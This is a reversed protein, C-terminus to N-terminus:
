VARSRVLAFRDKLRLFPTELFRYSMAALGTTVAFAAPLKLGFVLVANRLSSGPGSRLGLGSHAMLAGVAEQVMVHFVYLGYSIKGLYVLRPSWRGSSSRLFGLFLMVTGWMEVARGLPLVLGSSLRNGDPLVLLGGALWLLLGGAMMAASWALRKPRREVGVWLALLGGVPFYAFVWVFESSGLQLFPEGPWFAVTGLVVTLVVCATPLWHRRLLKMVLPWVLYFQEECSITWLIFIPNWRWGRLAFEWNLFFLLGSVVEWRPMHFDRALPQLLLGILFVLFYLPWIRLVRRVYFLGLHVDGTSQRERLLLGTILFASLLFFLGVGNAGARQVTLQVVSWVRRM